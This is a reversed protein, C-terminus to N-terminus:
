IIADATKIFLETRSVPAFQTRRLYHSLPPVDLNRRGRLFAPWILHLILAVQQRIHLCATEQTNEQPAQSADVLLIAVKTQKPGPFHSKKLAPEMTAKRKLLQPVLNLLPYVHLLRGDLIKPRPNSERRRWLRIKSQLTFFCVNQM